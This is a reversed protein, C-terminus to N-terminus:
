VKTWLCKGQKTMILRSARSDESCTVKKILGRDQMRKALGTVASKDLMLFSALNKMLSGNNEHLVILASLQVVPVDLADKCDADMSKMMAHRAINLQYVLRRNQKM